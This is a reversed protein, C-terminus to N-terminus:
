EDVICNPKQQQAKEKGYITSIIHSNDESTHSMQGSWIVMSIRHFFM